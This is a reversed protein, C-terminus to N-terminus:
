KKAISEIMLCANKPLKQVEMVARAPYPEKVYTQYIENIKSFQSIDTLFLTVKVLHNFDMQNSKLINLIHQMVLHTAPEIDMIIQNTMVDLPIQGSIYLWGDVEIAQSYPGIPKPALPTVIARKTM